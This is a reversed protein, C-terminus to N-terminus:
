ARGLTTQDKAPHLGRESDVGGTQGAQVRRGRSTGGPVEVTTTM